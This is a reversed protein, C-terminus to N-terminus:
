PDFDEVFEVEGSDPPPFVRHCRPCEFTERHDRYGQSLMIPPPFTCKCLEYGLAQAIKAEALKSQKEAEELSQEVAKKESSDPLLDKAKKAAGIATAFLGLASKIEEIM